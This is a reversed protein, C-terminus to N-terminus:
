MRAAAFGLSARQTNAPRLKVEPMGIRAASTDQMKPPRLKLEAMLVRAPARLRERQNVRAFDDSKAEV